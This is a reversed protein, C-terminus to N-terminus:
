WSRRAARHSGSARRLLVVQKRAGAPRGEVRVVSDRGGAPQFRARAADRRAPPVRGDGRRAQAPARTRGRNGGGEERVRGAHVPGLVRCLHPSAAPLFSRVGRRSRARRRRQPLQGPQGRGTEAVGHTSARRRRAHACGGAARTDRPRREPEPDSIAPSSWRGGCSPPAAVTTRCRSSACRRRCRSRLPTERRGPARSKSTRGRSPSIPSRRGTSGVGFGDGAWSPRRLALTFAQAIADHVDAGRIRGRPIRDGDGGQRGGSEVRSDVPAYLNVWLRDGSEYYIGDGHLAHSEMGSGVCCTFSRFMDAYERRVGRGVPVMYCTSGDNPDMSGLIHNFLAREHFEAYEADPRLAFLRRTLKLMNYVNCTEATRGDVIQASGTLSASISTKATAAPPSATTTCWAIGSSAPRSGMERIAPTRSGCPQGSCNPCM